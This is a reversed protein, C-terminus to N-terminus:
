PATCLTKFVGCPAPMGSQDAPGPQIVSVVVSEGPTGEDCFIGVPGAPGAGYLVDGGPYIIKVATLIGESQGSRHVFATGTISEDAGSCPNPCTNTFPNAEDALAGDANARDRMNEARGRCVDDPIPAGIVTPPVALILLVASVLAVTLFLRTQIRPKEM